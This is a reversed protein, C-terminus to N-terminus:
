LGGFFALAADGVPTLLLGPAVGFVVTLVILPSWVLWEMPHVDAIVVSGPDVEESKLEVSPAGPNVPRVEAPTGQLMGRMLAIFYATTLIVGLAAIVALTVFTGSPLVAAHDVAARIALMEGWFGALGPLGLSAM